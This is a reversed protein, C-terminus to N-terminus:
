YQTHFESDCAFFDGTAANFWWGAGESGKPVANIDNVCIIMSRRMSDNVYPNDPMQRLYSGSGDPRQQQMAAVFADSTVSDGDSQQGPLLGHHHAKYLMIQSRIIQLRDVMDSLKKEEVAQTVGPTFVSAVIGFLVMLICGDCLTLKKTEKKEM